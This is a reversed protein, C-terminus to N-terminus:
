GHRSTAAVDPSDGILVFGAWYYPHRWAPNSRMAERAFQLADAPSLRRRFLGQYFRTMFLETARDDVDWLSAVVAQAGAYLFARALSIPGEGDESKGEATNCASLVVLRANWALNYIDPLRLLGDSLAIGSLEPREPDLVAHAAFHVIAYHGLSPNEAAARTADSGFVTEKGGPVVAAIRLAEERSLRLRPLASNGDPYAPDAFIALEGRQEDGDAPTQRQSWLASASPILAARTDRPLLSDFPLDYLSGDLAILVRRGLLVNSPPLLTKSLVPILKEFEVASQAIRRLRTEAPENDVGRAPETLATRAARVLRDIEGRAPLEYVQLSSKTIAWVYSQKSGLMYELLVSRNDLVERQIQGATAPQPDILSSCQACKRRIMARIEDYHAELQDLERRVGAAREATRPSSLLRTLLAAKSDILELTHRADQSLAPDAKAGYAIKGATLQDLLVRARARESVQFAQADFGARSDRAHLQMLIEVAQEYFPRTHAEFSIRPGEPPANRRVSELLQLAALSEERAAPLDGSEEAARALRSHTLAEQDPDIIEHQISLAQRLLAVGEPRQGPLLMNGLLSLARGEERRDGLARAADLAERGSAIGAASDGRAGDVEALAFLSRALERQNHDKRSIKLAEADSEAARAFQKEAEHISAISLLAIAQGRREGIARAIALARAYNDLAKEADGLRSYVDGTNILAFMEGRQGRSAHFLDAAQRSLAASDEFNGLDAQAVALNELTNAIGQSNSLQKRIKLAEEYFAVALRAEGRNRHFVGLNTTSQALGARDGIARRIALASEYNSLAEPDRGTSQDLVGLMNLIDAATRRDSAQRALALGQEFLGRAKAYDSRAGAVSGLERLAEAKGAIDNISDAIALAKELSETAQAAQQTDGYLKGLGRLARSECALDASRRCIRIAESFHPIAERSRGASFLTQAQEFRAEAEAAGDAAQRSLQASHEFARIAADQNGTDNEKEGEILASFAAARLRDRDEAPHKEAVAISYRASAGASERSILELRYAGPLDIVASWVLPERNGGTRLQDFVARMAPDLVAVHLLAGRGAVIVSLYDNAQADIEFTATEGAALMGEIPPGPALSRSQSFALWPAAALVLVLAPGCSM